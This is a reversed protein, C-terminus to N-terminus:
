YNQGAARSHIMYEYSVLEDQGNNFLGRFFLLAFGQTGWGEVADPARIRRYDPGYWLALMGDRM